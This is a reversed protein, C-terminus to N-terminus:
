SSTSLRVFASVFSYSTFSARNCLSAPSILSEALSASCCCAKSNANLSIVAVPFERPTGVSLNKVESWSM